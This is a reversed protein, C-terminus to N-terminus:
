RPSDDGSRATSSGPNRATKLMRDLRLSLRSIAAEMRSMERGMSLSDVEAPGHQVDSAAGADGFGTPDGGTEPPTYRTPLSWMSYPNPLAGNRQDLLMSAFVSGSIFRAELNPSSLPVVVAGGKEAAAASAANADEFTEGSVVSVEEGTDTTATSVEDVVLFSDDSEASSKAPQEEGPRPLIVAPGAVGTRAPIAKGANNGQGRVLETFPSEGGGSPKVAITTAVGSSNM